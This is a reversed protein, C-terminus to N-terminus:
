DELGGAGRRHNRSRVMEGVQRHIIINVTAERNRKKLKPLFPQDPRSSLQQVSGIAPRENDEERCQLVLGFHYSPIFM